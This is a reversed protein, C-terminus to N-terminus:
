PRHEMALCSADAHRLTTCEGPACICNPYDPSDAYSAALLRYNLTQDHEERHICVFSSAARLHITDTACWCCWVLTAQVRPTRRLQFPPQRRAPVELGLVRGGHLPTESPEELLRKLVTQLAHRLRM